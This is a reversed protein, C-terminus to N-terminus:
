RPNTSMFKEGSSGILVEDFMCEYETGLYIEKLEDFNKIVERLDDKTAKLPNGDVPLNRVGLFSFVKQRVADLDLLLEEYALPLVPVGLGKIQQQTKLDNKKMNQLRRDFEEPNIELVGLRNEEVHLNWHGTSAQLRIANIMSVARKVRNNRVLHIVKADIQRLLEGFADFDALDSFKSKLGAARTGASSDKGAQMACLAEKEQRDASMGVLIEGKASIDPHNDLM